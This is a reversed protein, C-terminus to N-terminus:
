NDKPEFRFIILYYVCPKEKDSLFFSLIDVKSVYFFEIGQWFVYFICERKGPLCIQKLLFYQFYLFKQCYTFLTFFTPSSLPSSPQLLPSFTRLLSDLMLSIWYIGRQRSEITKANKEQSQFFDLFLIMITNEGLRKIKGVRLM